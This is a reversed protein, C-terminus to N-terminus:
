KGLVIDILANVDSVDVTGNNNLDAAPTPAQKGLVMDIMINVDAVDVTGNGNLDGRVGTGGPTGTYFITFNDVLCPATKSGATMAIRFQVPQTKVFSVNWYTTFNAGGAVNIYTNGLSSTANKWNNGDITYQLAIKAADGSTNKVDFCAQSTNFYVPQTMKLVSPNKMAVAHDGDAVETLTCQALQWSTIDGNGTTATLPLSNFTEVVSKSQGAKVM